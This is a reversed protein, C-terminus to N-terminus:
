IEQRAEDSQLKNLIQMYVEKSVSLPQNGSIVSFAQKGLIKGESLFVSKGQKEYNKIFKDIQLFM